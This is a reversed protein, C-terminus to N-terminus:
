VREQVGRSETTRRGRSSAQGKSGKRQMKLRTAEAAAGFDILGAEINEVTLVPPVTELAQQPAAPLLRYFAADRCLEEYAPTWRM